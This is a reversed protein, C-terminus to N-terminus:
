IFQFTSLMQDVYTLFYTYSGFEAIYSVVYVKGNHEAFLQLFRMQSTEDDSVSEYVIQYAAEGGLTTDQESVLSYNKLTNELKAVYGKVYSNFADDGEMDLVFRQVSLSENYEDSYGEAPTIFAAIGEGVNTSKEWFDPYEISFGLPTSRYLKYNELTAKHCGSILLMMVLALVAALKKKM